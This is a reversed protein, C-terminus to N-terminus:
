SYVVKVDGADFAAELVLRVGERPSSLEDDYVRLVRVASEIMEPTIEVEQFRRGTASDTDFDPRYTM